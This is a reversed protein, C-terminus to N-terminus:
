QNATVYGRRTIAQTNIEKLLQCLARSRTTLSDAKIRERTTHMDIGIPGLGDVAITHPQMLYNVDSAGGSTSVQISQNEIKGIISQLTTQLWQAEPKMPFPPCDDCIEFSTEAPVNESSLTKVRNLCDLILAHAQDRDEPSQFRLDLKASVDGCVINFADRVSHIAGVNLKINPFREKLFSIETIHRCLEHAANIEEGNARGSHAERGKVHINYWRNGFRSGIIDGNALAPEFGLLIDIEQGLESLSSHFGPTGCEENPTCIVLLNVQQQSDKLFEELGKLAVVIGGKDDAVGLGHVYESQIKINGGKKHVTDAHMVFGVTPADDSIMKRAILMSGYQRLPCSVMETKFGLARFYRATHNQVKNVGRRRSYHSNIQVLENLLLLEHPLHRLVPRRIRRPL